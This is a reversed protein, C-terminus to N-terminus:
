WTLKKGTYSFFCGSEEFTLQDLLSKIGSVSETTSILADPGGMDTKVWGPHLAIVKIQKEKLDIAMNKTIMNLAAKSSRYIYYDSENNDNISALNSSMNVIIKLKSLAVNTMLAQAILFPAITNIKFTELWIDPQVTALTQIEGGKVAANNFLIDIPEQAIQRALNKISELNNVELQMVNVAKYQTKLAHLETAQEPSRCCAWVRWGAHAYQKVLELGIGRNSGTILISKM